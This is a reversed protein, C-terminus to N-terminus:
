RQPAPAQEQPAPAKQKVAKGRFHYGPVFLAGVHSFGRGVFDSAREAFNSAASAQMSVFVASVCTLKIFSKM